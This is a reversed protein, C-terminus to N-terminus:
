EIRAIPSKVVHMKGGDGMRYDRSAITPAPTPPRRKAPKEAPRESGLTINLEAM